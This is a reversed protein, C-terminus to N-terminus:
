VASIAQYGDYVCSEQPAVSCKRICVFTLKKDSNTLDSRSKRRPSGNPRKPRMSM